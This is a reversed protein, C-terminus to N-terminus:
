AEALHEYIETYAELLVGAFMADLWNDDLNNQHKKQFRKIFRNAALKTKFSKMKPECGEVYMVYYKMAYYKM